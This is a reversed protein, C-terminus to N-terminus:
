TIKFAKFSVQNIYHPPLVKKISNEIEWLLDAETVQNRKEWVLNKRLTEYILDRYFPLNNNIEHYARQDTYDIVIDTTIYAMDTARDSAMVVFDSLLLSGSKRIVAVPEDAKEGIVEGGGDEMETAAVPVSEEVVVADESSFFLFYATPISVGLVLIVGVFALVISKIKFKSPTDEFEVDAPAELVVQGLADEGTGDEDLEFFEDDDFGEDLNVDDLDDDGMDEMIDGLVDEDEQDAAQLLTDIDDQSILIDDEDELAEDDGESEMLLADIDEQSVADQDLADDGMPDEDRDDGELDLGLDDLNLDDGDLDIEPSDGEVPGDGADEDEPAEVPTDEQSFAQLLDDMADQSVLNEEISLAQSEDILFGDDDDAASSIDVAEDSEDEGDIPVQLNDDEDLDPAGASEEDDLGLDDLDLEDLNLEDLDLSDAEDPDSGPADPEAEDSGLDSLDIADGDSPNEDKANPVAVEDEKNGNGPEGDAVTPGSATTAAAESNLFQLVDDQSIFEDDEDDPADDDGGLLADIDDQSLEGGEEEGGEEEEPEGDGSFDLDGMLSDIDDQSLEGADDDLDLSLDDMSKEDMASSNLLADIDDQSIIDDDESDSNAM